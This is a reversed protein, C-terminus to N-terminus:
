RDEEEFGDEFVFTGNRQVVEGDLAIYSDSAMDVIMDVHIASENAERDEGVAEEIARGLALHITDGMKEDFLINRTFRDIDRNMGIGLEGLRRAGEDTELLAELVSANKEATHDVVEGDEFELTVGDIERGQHVLPKDFYVTGEASDVVPVTFVEGGPMNKEGFDNVAGMGDVSMRLDTEDGSVIRVESAPELRPVLQDQHARQAAWDKDVAEYVFDTYEDTSMEAEQAHGKTPHLTGVWRTDLYAELIPQNAKSRAASKEPDVDSQEFTNEAARINVVVDVAEMLALEAEFLDIDAPSVANMYARAARASPWTTITEAGREGLKEHLAVVLEEAPPGARVLVSDGPRVDTSHEILIEAHRRVRPDM